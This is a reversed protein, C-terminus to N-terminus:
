ADLERFLNLFGAVVGVLLFILYLFHTGLARDLLYGIVYGVAMSIPILSALSSYKGVQAWVSNGDM